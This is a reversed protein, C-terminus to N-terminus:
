KDVNDGKILKLKNKMESKHKGKKAKKYSSTVILILIGSYISLTLIIILVNDM